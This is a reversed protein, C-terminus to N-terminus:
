RRVQIRMWIWPMWLQKEYTIKEQRDL